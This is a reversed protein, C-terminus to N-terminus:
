RGALLVAIFQSALDPSKFIEDRLDCHMLHEDSFDNDWQVDDNAVCGCDYCHHDGRHVYTLADLILKKFDLLVVYYHVYEM